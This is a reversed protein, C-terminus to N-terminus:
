VENYLPDLVKKVSDRFVTAPVDVSKLNVFVNGKFKVDEELCDMLQKGEHKAGKENADIISSSSSVIVWDPSSAKVPASTSLSPIRPSLL